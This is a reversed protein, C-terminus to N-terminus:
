KKTLILEKTRLIERAKEKRTKELTTDFISDTQAWAICMKGEVDRGEAKEKKAIEVQTDISDRSMERMTNHKHSEDTLTADKTAKNQSTWENFKVDKIPHDGVIFYKM